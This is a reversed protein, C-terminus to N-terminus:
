YVKADDATTAWGANNIIGAQSHLAACSRRTQEGPRVLYRVSVGRLRPLSLLRELLYFARPYRWDRGRTGDPTITSIRTGARPDPQRRKFGRNLLLKEFADETNCFQRLRGHYIGTSQRCV